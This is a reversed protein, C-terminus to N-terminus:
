EKIIRSSICMKLQATKVPHSVLRSYALLNDLKHLSSTKMANKFTHIQLAAPQSPKSYPSPWM